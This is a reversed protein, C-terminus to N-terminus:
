PCQRVRFDRGVGACVRAYEEIMPVFSDFIRISPIERKLVRKASAEVSEHVELTNQRGFFLKESDNSFVSLTVSVGFRVRSM